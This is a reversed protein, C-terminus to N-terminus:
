AADRTAIAAFRSNLLEELFGPYKKRDTYAGVEPVVDRCYRILASAVEVYSLTHGGRHMTELVGHCGQTGDGCLWVLNEPVDDGRLSRPLAHHRTLREGGAGCLPCRVEHRLPLAKPNVIRKVPKPASSTVAAGPVCATGYNGNASAAVTSLCTAYASM